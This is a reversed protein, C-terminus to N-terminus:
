EETVLPAIDVTVIEINQVQKGYDKIKSGKPLNPPAIKAPHKKPKNAQPRAQATQHLRHSTAKPQEGIAGFAGRRNTTTDSLHSNNRAQALNNNCNSHNERECRRGKM